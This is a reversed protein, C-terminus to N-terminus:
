GWGARAADKFRQGSSKRKMKGFVDRFDARKVIELLVVDNEKLQKDKLVDRPLVVGFSNGWRRVTTEIAM